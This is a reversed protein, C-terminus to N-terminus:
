PRTADVLCHRRTTVGKSFRCKQDGELLWRIRQKRGGAGRKKWRDRVDEKNEHEICELRRRAGDDGDPVIVKGAREDGVTPWVAERHKDWRDADEVLLDLLIGLKKGEFEHKLPTSM